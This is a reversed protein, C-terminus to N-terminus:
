VLPRLSMKFLHVFLVLFEEVDSVSWSLGPASSDCPGASASPLRSGVAESDLGHEEWKVANRLLNRLYDRHCRGGWGLDRGSAQCCRGFPFMLSKGRIIGCKRM